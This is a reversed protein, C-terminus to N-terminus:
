SHISAPDGAGARLSGAPGSSLGSHLGPSREPVICRLCMRLCSGPAGPGAPGLASRCQAPAPWCLHDCPRVRRGFLSFRKLLQFPARYRCFALWPVQVTCFGPLCARFDSTIFYVHFCRNALNKRRILQRGRVCGSSIQSYPRFAAEIKYWGGARLSM